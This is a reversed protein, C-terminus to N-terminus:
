EVNLTMLIRRAGFDVACTRQSFTENELIGKGERKLHLQLPRKGTLGWGKHWPCPTTHKSSLVHTKM